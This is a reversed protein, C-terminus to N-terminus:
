VLKTAIGNVFSLVGESVAIDGTYRTTFDLEEVKSYSINGTEINIPTDTTAFGNVLFYNMNKLEWLSSDVASSGIFVGDIHTSITSNGTGFSDRLLTTKVTFKEGPTIFYTNMNYAAYTGDGKNIFYRMFVSDSRIVLQLFVVNSIQWANLLTSNGGSSVSDLYFDVDVEFSDNFDDLFRIARNVGDSANKVSYELADWSAAGYTPTVGLEAWGAGSSSWDETFDVVKSGFSTAVTDFTDTAESYTPYAGNIRVSSTSSKLFLSTEEIPTVYGLMWKAWLNALVERAETTIPHVGDGFYTLVDRYQLNFEKAVDFFGLDYADAYRQVDKNNAYITSSLNANSTYYNPAGSCVVQIADIDHLYRLGCNRIFSHLFRWAGYITTRDVKYISGGLTDVGGSSDLNMTIVNDTISTIVGAFEEAVSSGTNVLICSDQLALGHGEALEITTEAGVTISVIDKLDNTDDGYDSFRDNHNHDLVVITSLNEKIPTEVRHNCTMESAKTIAHFDDNYVSTGGYKALGMEVDAQTMSLRRITELNDPDGDISYTAASGSWAMNVCSDAGVKKASLISYSDTQEGQHPISTGLWLIKEGSYNIIKSKGVNNDLEGVDFAKSPKIVTTCLIRNTATLEGNTYNLRINKEDTSIYVSMGGLDIVADTGEYFDEVSQVVLSEDSGDGIIGLSKANINESYDLKYQSGLSDTIFGSDVKVWRGSGSDGKEYYGITKVVDGVSLTSSDFTNILITTTDVEYSATRNLVEDKAAVSEDRATESAEVAVAIETANDNYLDNIQTQVSPVTLGNNTNTVYEDVGLTTVSDFFETTVESRVAAETIKAAADSLESM